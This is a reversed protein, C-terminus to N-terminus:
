VKVPDGRHPLSRRMSGANARDGRMTVRDFEEEYRAHNTGMLRDWINFYLGFNCNIHRHHMDHHVTTNHWRFIRHTAFGRPLIEFGLHGGVNMLTMYLLWLLAALPHLPLVLLTLPFVVAQVLAEIPHFAFSAWPTPNHSLHHVRHMLPFLRRWHMLRHTWYFWTDHILILAGVSFAFYPWGREEIRFYIRAWGAQYLVYTVVGMGGFVVFSLLSYLVERRMQAFYPFSAQIKRSIARRRFLVYFLLYAGGAMLTYRVLHALFGALVIRPYSSLIETLFSM